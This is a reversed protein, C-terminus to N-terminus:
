YDEEDDSGYKRALREEYDEMIRDNREQRVQDWYENQERAIEEQERWREEASEIKDQRDWEAQQREQEKEQWREEWQEEWRTVNYSPYSTLSSDSDSDATPTWTSPTPRSYSVRGSARRGALVNGLVLAVVALVLELIDRWVLQELNGLDYVQRVHRVWDIFLFMGFIMLCAGFLGVFGGRIDALAYGWRFLGYCILVSFGFMLLSVCTEIDPRFDFTMQEPYKVAFWALAILFCVIPLLGMLMLGIGVIRRCM